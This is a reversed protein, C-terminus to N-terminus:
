TLGRMDAIQVLGLAAAADAATILSSGRSHLCAAAAAVAYRLADAGAAGGDLAVLLGALFADGAGVASGNHAPPTWAHWCRGHQALVAGDAGLTICATPIGGDHIGFAARAAEAVSDVTRGCLRAAEHQNPVVLDCGAAVALRLPEGDCDVVARVGAARATAVLRAHFAPPFGQPLSGCTALWRPRLQELARAGATALAALEADSRVPGRANLLMSRGTDLERVAVFTRTEADATVALLPTGEAALMAALERGTAGGLLALATSGTGLARAARTVNIGQGGPRRRPEDMRNADDWVLRRTEFLLDLSPNPTVTLVLTGNTQRAAAAAATVSM